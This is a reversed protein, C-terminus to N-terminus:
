FNFENDIKDNANAISANSQKILAILNVLPWCVLGTLSGYVAM